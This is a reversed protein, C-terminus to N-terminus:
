WLRLQADATSRELQPPVMQLFGSTAESQELWPIIQDKKLILPMRHHIERISDNAETTLICYRPQGDQIMYLGAMNYAAPVCISIDQNDVAGASLVINYDGPFNAKGGYASGLVVCWSVFNRGWLATCPQMTPVKKRTM